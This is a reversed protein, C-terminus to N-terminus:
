QISGLVYKPLFSNLVKSSRQLSHNYQQVQSCHSLKNGPVCHLSLLLWIGPNRWVLEASCAAVNGWVHCVYRPRKDSRQSSVGGEFHSYLKIRLKDLLYRLELGCHCGGLGLSLSVKKVFKKRLLKEHAVSLQIQHALRKLIGLFWFKIKRNVICSLSYYKLLMNVLSKSSSLREFPSKQQEQSSKSPATEGIIWLAGLDGVTMKDEMLLTYRNFLIQIFTHEMWAMLQKRMESVM